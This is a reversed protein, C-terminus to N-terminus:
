HNDNPKKDTSNKQGDEPGETLSDYTEGAQEMFGSAMDKAMGAAGGVAKAAGSVMSAFLNNMTHVGNSFAERTGQLLGGQDDTARVEGSPKTSETNSPVSQADNGSNQLGTPFPQYGVPAFGLQIFNPNM